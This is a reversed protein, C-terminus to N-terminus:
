GVADAGVASAGRMTGGRSLRPALAGPGVVVRTKAENLALGVEGLSSRLRGLVPDADAPRRLAVVLDDVWRLHPLGSAELAHDAAALVANALVASPEPGVPLGRVGLRGFRRLLGIVEDTPDQGCGFSRLATAVAGEDISPFCDRVDAFLLCGGRAALATLRRRFAARELTFSRLRLAPPDISVASVRSAAVADSLAAEIAPAVGAVARVYRAALSPHLFTLERRGAAGVSRLRGGTRM